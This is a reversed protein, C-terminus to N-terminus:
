AVSVLARHRVELDEALGILTDAVRRFADAITAACDYAPDATALNGRAAQVEAALAEMGLAQERAEAARTLYDTNSTM